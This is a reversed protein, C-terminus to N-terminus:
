IKIFSLILLFIIFFITKDIYNWLENHSNEKEYKRYKDFILFFYGICGILSLLSIFLLDLLTECKFFDTEALRAIILILLM